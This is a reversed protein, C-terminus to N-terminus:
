VSVIKLGKRKYLWIGILLVFVNAGVSVFGSEMCGYLSFAFMIIVMKEDISKMYRMTALYALSFISYGLIGYRILLSMYANDLILWNLGSINKGFLSIGFTEYASHGFWLRGSFLKNLSELWGSGNYNVMLIISTVNVLAAVIICSDLLWKKVKSLKHFNNLPLMIILIGLLFASSQSNPIIWIFVIALLSVFYDILRTKEKRVFNLILILAVSFGLYNPHIYGLSMRAKTDRLLVTQNIYGGWFLVIVSVFLIIQVFFLRQFLYNFDVRKSAVIFIWSALLINTGACISVALVIASIIIMTVFQYLAYYRFAIIQGILLLLVLIDICDNITNWFNTNVNIINTQFIVTMVYWFFYVCYFIKEKKIRFRVKTNM